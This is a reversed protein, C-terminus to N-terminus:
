ARLETRRVALAKALQEIGDFLFLTDSMGIRKGPTIIWKRAVGSDLKVFLAERAHLLEFFQWNFVRTAGVDLYSEFFVLAHCRHLAKVLRSKVLATPAQEEDPLELMEQDLFPHCGETRLAAALERAHQAFKGHRYSIFFDLDGCPEWTDEVPELSYRDPIGWDRM